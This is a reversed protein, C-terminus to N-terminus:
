EIGTIKILYIIFVSFNSIGMVMLDPMTYQVDILIKAIDVHYWTYTCFRAADFRVNRTCHHPISKGWVPQDQEWTLPLSFTGRRCTCRSSTAPPTATTAMTFYLETPPLRNWRSLWNWGPYRRTPWDPTVCILPDTSRRYRRGSLENSVTIGRGPIAKIGPIRRRSNSRKRGRVSLVGNIRECISSFRAYITLFIM